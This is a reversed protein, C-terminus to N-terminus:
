ADVSLRGNVNAVTVKGVALHVAVKSGRPVSIRLDAHAELGDGRDSITVQRGRSHEHRGHEDGFTGDDRVPLQTSSGRGLPPYVIKNSPYIVRLTERGDIEGQEVRLQGAGGGGRTLQVGVSDQGAEVSVEGARNYIAVDGAELSHREQQAVLVVPGALVFSLIAVFRM